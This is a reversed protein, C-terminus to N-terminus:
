QDRKGVVSCALIPLQLFKGGEGQEHARNVRPCPPKLSRSSIRHSLSRNARSSGPKTDTPCFAENACAGQLFHAVLLDRGGKLVTSLEERCPEPCTGKRWNQGGSGHHDGKSQSPSQSRCNQVLEVDAGQQPGYSQAPLHLLAQLSRNMAPATDGHSNERQRM